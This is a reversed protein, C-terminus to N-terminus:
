PTLAEEVTHPSRRAAASTLSRDELPPGPLLFTFLGVQLKNMALFLQRLQVLPELHSLERLRNQALSLELLLSQGVLSSEGLAKIRNRDLVLARLRTLGELGEM